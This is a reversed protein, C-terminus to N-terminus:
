VGNAAPIARVVRPEVFLLRCTVQAPSLRLNHCVARRYAELQPAYWAVKEDIAVAGALRDSKFDIVEAGVVRGAERRLVLRDLTGQILREGERIAFPLECQVEFTADGVAPGRSLAARVTPDDLLEFFHRLESAIDCEAAVEPPVVDLLREATPRGEDLWRIEQFWRHLLTGRALGSRSDISLREGLDVTRGGQLSSPSSRELGRSVMGAGPKLVIKLPGPAAIPAVALMATSARDWDLDGRQYVVKNPEVPQDGVWASRLVGAFTQPIAKENETSPAIILHMAHVARTLAVYLVCLSENVVQNPWDRFMAQVREPLLPLVDKNVYRCVSHIPDIPGDRGVVVSPNQGRLKMQLEPLVVIDFELGKSQHVTMVRINSTTPDEVRENGIFEIFDDPRLTAESEYAYGLEILQQLRSLSRADCEKAFARVWGYLTRGYGETLLQRRVQQSLDLAAADNDFDTFGVVPGLPSRAVHFRAVRDGPHDAITLLSLIYQVAASDTLPNGGEESATLHHETRLLHIIRAVVNNRRVLVGISRGPHQQALRAIEKAAFQLTVESQAKPDAARPAVVMQAFGALKDKATSHSQFRERWRRTLDPYERLAANPTLDDFVQNVAQMIVDSSRFSKSLSETALGRIEQDVADFIESVGGRWGYIAQKVDGVCLFSRPQEDTVHRALPGVVSWQLLSTDQFEDLLLHSLQSDLRYCVNVTRAVSVGGALTRAVDDFRLARGGTKLEQYAEDFKQLLRRTADLQNALNNLLVGRAHGMLPGYADILEQPIDKSRYTTEGAFLKGAIGKSIFTQWDDERAASLDSTRAKAMGDSLGSVAAVEDISLHLEEPPLTTHRPICDWASVPAERYVDYLSDVAGRIQQTVSRVLEGKSLLRMLTLLDAVTERRLVTRIAESRLQQDDLESVIRWGPPLGLELAFSGAMQIFFSDLTGIRLRHVRRILDQLMALCQDRDLEPHGIFTALEQLATADLAANALRLLVRDLIEGAAKRAFTAALIHDAPEGACILGLFRNSLQFTKGTGASARIV